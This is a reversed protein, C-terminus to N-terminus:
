TDGEHTHPTNHIRALLKEIFDKADGEVVIDSLSCIPAQVNTNVAIITEIDQLGEVHQIAGNIGLAIYLRPSVFKGSQGVQISRPALGQDVLKRSASVVGGLADALQHLIPFYRTVGGGGSILIDSKRIDYSVRKKERRVIRLTSTSPIPGDYDQISTYVDPSQNYSFSDPHVSMMMPGDGVATIGAMLNGAYATRIMMLTSERQQVEHVDAVLGTHLRRALRPALMRGTHTAPILISTFQHAKQLHEIVDCIGALHMMEYLSEPATIIQHFYGEADEVDKQLALLSVHYTGADYMLQTLALLNKSNAFCDTDQVVLVHKM